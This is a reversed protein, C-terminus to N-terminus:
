NLSPDKSKQTSKPTRDDLINLKNPGQSINKGFIVEHVKSKIHIPIKNTNMRKLMQQSYKPVKDISTAM